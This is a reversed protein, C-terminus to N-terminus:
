FGLVIYHYDGIDDVYLVAIRNSGKEEAALVMSVSMGYEAWEMLVKQKDLNLSGMKIGKEDVYLMQMANPNSLMADDLSRIVYQANESHNSDFFSLVRITGPGLASTGSYLEIGKSVKGHIDETEVYRRLLLTGDEAFTWDQTCPKGYVTGRLKFNELIEGEANLVFHTVKEEEREMPRADLHIQGGGDMLVTVPTLGEEKLFSCELSWLANMEEDLELIYYGTKEVQATQGIGIVHDSGWVRGISIMRVDSGDNLRAHDFTRVDGEMDVTYFKQQPVSDDEQSKYNVMFCVISHCMVARIGEAAVNESDFNMKTERSIVYKEKAEDEETHEETNTKGDAGKQENYDARRKAHEDVLMAGYPSSGQSSNNQPSSDQSTEGEALKERGCGGLILAVTLMACPIMKIIRHRFSRREGNM